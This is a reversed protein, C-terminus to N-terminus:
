EEFEIESLNPTNDGKSFDVGDVEKEGSDVGVREDGFIEDNDENDSEKDTDKTSNSETDVGKEDEENRDKYLGYHSEDVDHDTFGFFNELRKNIATSPYFRYKPVFDWGEEKKRGRPKTKLIQFKGQGSLPLTFDEQHLVFDVTGHNLAKFLQWSDSLSYKEGLVDEIILQLHEKFKKTKESGM